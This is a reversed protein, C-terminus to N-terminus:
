KLLYNSVIREKVSILHTSTTKSAKYVLFYRSGIYEEREIFDGKTNGFEFSNNTENFLIISTSDELLSINSQPKILIDFKIDKVWILKQKNSYVYMKNLDYFVFELDNDGDIDFLFFQHNPSFDRLLTKNVKGNNDISIIRGSIDTTILRNNLKYFKTKTNNTFALKTEMRAIGRRNSFVVNGLSDTLLIFDKKGISFHQIQNIVKSPMQPLEWGKTISGDIQYNHIAGDAQPIIIRYNRNNDYDMLSLPATASSNLSIPFNEVNNGNLDFMYMNDKSNYLFQYKGNNYYDVIQPSGMPLEAVPIAWEIKGQNNIRYMTNREDFVLINNTKTIHNKIIFPGAKINYDLAIQWSTNDDEEDNDNTSLVMSTFAGNTNVIFQLCIDGFQQANFQSKKLYDLTAKNLYPKTIQNIFHANAYLMIHSEANISERFNSFESRNALTKRVLIHNIYNKLANKSNAFVVYNNTITYFTKDMVNFMNGFIKPILYPLPIESIVFTRYSDTEITIGKQKCVINQLKILSQTSEKLDYSNILVLSQPKGNLNEKNTYVLALESKMWPYFYDSINTMMDVQYKKIASVNQVNFDSKNQEAIFKNFKEAGQFYIFSTNSPINEFINIEPADYKAYNSLRDGISDTSYSYGNFLLNNNSAKLDLVSFQTLKSLQKITNSYKKDTITSLLRYFYKHNIYINANADKGAIKLLRQINKKKTISEKKQELIIRKILADKDSICINGSQYTIYYHKKSNKINFKYIISNEYESITYNGLVSIKSAFEKDTIVHNFSFCLLNQYQKNGSYHLSFYTKPTKISKDIFVETKTWISDMETFYDAINDDVEIIDWIKYASNLEARLKSYNTSSFIITANNPIVMLADKPQKSIQNYTKYAYFLSGTLLIAIVIYIIFKLFKM